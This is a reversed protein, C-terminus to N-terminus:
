DLRPEPEDPEDLRAGLEQAERTDLDLADVVEEDDGAEAEVDRLAGVGDRDRQLDPDIADVSSVDEDDPGPPEFRAM